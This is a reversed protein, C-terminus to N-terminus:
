LHHYRLLYPYVDAIGFGQAVHLAGAGVVGQWGWARWPLSKRGSYGVLAIFYM